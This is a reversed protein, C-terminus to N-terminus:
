NKRMDLYSQRSNDNTNYISNVIPLSDDRSPGPIPPANSPVVVQNNEERISPFVPYGNQMNPLPQATIVAPGTSITPTKPDPFNNSLPVTGITIPIFIRPNEHVGPAKIEVMVEYQTHLVRCLSINTPPLSPIILSQQFRGTDHKAVGGTRREVV